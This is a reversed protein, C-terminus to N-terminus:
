GSDPLGARCEPIHGPRIRDRPNERDRGQHDPRAGAPVACAVGVRGGDRVHGGGRGTRHGQRYRALSAAQAGAAVKARRRRHAWWPVSLILAAIIGPKRLAAPLVARDRYRRFAMNRGRLDHCGRLRARAAHAIAVARRVPGGGVRGRWGARRRPVVLAAPHPAAVLRGGGACRDRGRARARLPVAVGGRLLVVGVTEPFADGTNIVMMPQLGSRRALRAQRRMQRYTTM